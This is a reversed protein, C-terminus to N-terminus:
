FRFILKVIMRITAIAVLLILAPLAFPWLACLLLFQIPGIDEREAILSVALMAAIFGAWYIFWAEIWNM